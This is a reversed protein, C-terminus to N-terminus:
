IQVSRKISLRRRPNVGNELRKGTRLSSSTAFLLPTLDTAGIGGSTQRARVPLERACQGQRLRKRGRAIPPIMPCPLRAATSCESHAIEIASTPEDPQSDHTPPVTRDLRKNAASSGGQNRLNLGVCVGAVAAATLFIALDVLGMGGNVEDLEEDTLMAAAAQQPFGVSVVFEVLAQRAVTSV